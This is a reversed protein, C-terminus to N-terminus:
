HKRVTSQPWLNGARETPVLTCKGPVSHPDRGSLWHELVEPSLGDPPSHPEKPFWLATSM